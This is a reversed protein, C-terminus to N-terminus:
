LVSRALDCWFSTGVSHQLRESAIMRVTCLTPNCSRAHPCPEVLVLAEIEHESYVFLTTAPRDLIVILEDVSLPPEDVGVNDGRLSAQRILNFCNEVQKRNSSQLVSVTLRRLNSPSTM